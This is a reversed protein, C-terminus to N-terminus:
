KTWDWIILEWSKGDDAKYSLLNEFGVAEHAQLSRTNSTAVETICYDYDPSLRERFHHYMKKFLGKKRHEKSICVQGMTVYGGKTLDQGNYQLQEIMQFMSKLVELANRHEISMVLCYGVVRDEWTAIIHPIPQNMRQLLQFEHKCTVFGEKIIEDDLLATQHNDLQLKLIQSIQQNERVQGIKYDPM